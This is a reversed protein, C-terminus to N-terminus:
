INHFCPVNISVDCVQQSESSSTSVNIEGKRRKKELKNNIIQVINTSCRFRVCSFCLFVITNYYHTYFEITLPYKLQNLCKVNLYSYFTFRCHRVIHTHTHTHKHTSQQAHLLDNKKEHGMGASHPQLHVM